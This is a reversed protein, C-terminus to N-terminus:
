SGQAAKAERMALLRGIILIVGMFLGPAIGRRALEALPPANPYQSVTFYWFAAFGLASLAVALIPTAVAFVGFNKILGTAPWLVAFQIVATILVIFLVINLYDQSFAPPAAATYKQWTYGALFVLFLTATVLRAM